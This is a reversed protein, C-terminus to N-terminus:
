LAGSPRGSAGQDDRKIMWVIPRSGDPARQVSLADLRLLGAGDPASWASASCGVGDSDSTSPEPEAQPIAAGGDQSVCGYRWTCAGSNLRNTRRQRGPSPLIAYRAAM